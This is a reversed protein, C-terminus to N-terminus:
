KLIYIKFYNSCFYEVHTSWASGLLCPNNVLFRGALSLIGRQMSNTLSAGSAGLCCLSNSNSKTVQWLQLTLGKQQLRWESPHLVYLFCAQDSWSVREKGSPALLFSMMKSLLPGQISYYQDAQCTTDVPAIITPCNHPYCSSESQVHLRNWLLSTQCRLNALFGHCPLDFARPSLRSTTKRKGQTNM